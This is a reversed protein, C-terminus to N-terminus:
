SFDPVTQLLANNVRGDVHLFSSLTHMCVSLRIKSFKDAKSISFTTLLYLITLKTKKFTTGKSSLKNNTVKKTEWPLARM